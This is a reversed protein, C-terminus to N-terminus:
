QPSSPSCAARPAAGDYAALLSRLRLQLSRRQRQLKMAPGTHTLFRFANRMEDYHRRLLDRQLVYLRWSPILSVAYVGSVVIGTWFGWASMALRFVLYTQLPFAIAAGAWGALTGYLSERAVVMKQGAEGSGATPPAERGLPGALHAVWRPVFGNAWGYLNFIILASSVLVGSLSTWFTYAPHRQRVVDDSLGAAALRQQYRRLAEELESLRRPEAMNFYEIARTVHQEREVRSALSGRPSGLLPVLSDILGALEGREINVILSELERQLRQTGRQLIKAESAEPGPSLDALRFPKGLRILVDSRFRQKASYTIGVPIWILGLKFGASREANYGLRMAGKRVMHLRRADTSIGEGFIAVLEGALLRPECTAFAKRNHDHVLDRQREYDMGRAVGVVGLKRVVWGYLPARTITDKAIFNIRRRALQSGLLFADTVSNPHNAVLVGPGTPPINEVGVIEIRRYYLRISQSLFAHGFRYFWDGM